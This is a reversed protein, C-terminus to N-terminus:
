SLFRKMGNSPLGQASEVSREMWGDTLLAVELVALHMDQGLDLCLIDISCTAASKFNM